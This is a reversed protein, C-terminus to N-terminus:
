EQGDNVDELSYPGTTRGDLHNIWYVGEEPYREVYGDLTLKGTEQDQVWYASPDNVLEAWTRNRRRIGSCFADLLVCFAGLALTFLVGQTLYNQAVLAALGLFLLSAVHKKTLGM